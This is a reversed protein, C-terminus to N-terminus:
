RRWRGAGGGRWARYGVPLIALGALGLIPLLVAPRFLVGFDPRGGQALVDGLGSGLSAFIFTAPIMGFFTGLVFSSIKMGTAGAALNVLWFPFIPVLRLALLYNLAHDRFGAEIRRIRPGARASLGALGSRAALFVATAGLTAAVLAYVTGLWAGFLLGSTVTFIAAGPLSVAVLGAYGLVFGITAPVGGRRVANCLWERNAALADFSLYDHGGVAVLAAGALALVAMPLLRRLSPAAVPRDSM